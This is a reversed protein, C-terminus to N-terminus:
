DSSSGHWLSHLPGGGDPTHGSSVKWACEMWANWWVTPCLVKQSWPLFFLQEAGSPLSGLAEHWGGELPAGSSPHGEQGRVKM